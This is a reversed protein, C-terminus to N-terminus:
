WDSSAYYEPKFVRKFQIKVDTVNQVINLGPLPRVLKKVNLQEKYSFNNFPNLLLNSVRNM